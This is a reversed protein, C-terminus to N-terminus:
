YGCNCQYKVFDAAISYDGNTTIITTPDYIDTITGVHDIWEGFRHGEDAVAVIPM